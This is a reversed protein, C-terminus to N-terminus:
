AARDSAGCVLGGGGFAHADLRRAQSYLAGEIYYPDFEVLNWKKKLSAYQIAKTTHTYILPEGNQFLTRILCTGIGNQRFSRRVWVYHLTPSEIGLYKGCDGCAFGYIVDGNEKDCAVVCVTTALLAEVRRAYKRVAKASMESFPFQKQLSRVWSKIIYPADSPAM